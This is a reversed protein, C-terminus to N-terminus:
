GECLLKTHNDLRIWWDRADNVLYVITLYVNEWIKKAINLWEKAGIGRGDRSFIPIAM